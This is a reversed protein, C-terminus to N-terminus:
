DHREDLTPQPMAPLVADPDMGLGAVSARLAEVKAMREENTMAPAPLALPPPAVGLEKMRERQGDPLRAGPYKALAEAVDAVDVATMCGPLTGDDYHVWIRRSNRERLRAAAADARASKLWSVFDNVKPRWQVFGDQRMLVPMLEARTAGMEHLHWALKLAGAVEDLGNQSPRDAFFEWATRALARTETPVHSRVFATLQEITEPQRNM